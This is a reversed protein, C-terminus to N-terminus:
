GGGTQTEVYRVQVEVDYESLREALRAALDPPPGDAPRGITVVVQQPAQSLLDGNTEVRLELVALGDYGAVTERVQHDIDERDTATQYSNYTVGGLFASLVLIAVALVAGRKFLASRAQGLRFWHTPRYGSYWFVLLAALNISLANVAVLVSGGLVIRPRLWAIGIGVVAAPPVLAVAIMVGVLSASVGSRLSMAGAAGAGIAIVLTLFGPAVRESVEAIALLDLGPPVLGGYRVLVAFAAATAVALPFGYAQMRLGSLFLDRDDLVTGVSAAMAPGILPAIVMSGVVTAPSDLLLGATAILVSVVTLVVYNTTDPVLDAARAQLEERAIREEGGESEEYQEQLKDFKRSIVTEAELVITFTEESLGADRLDELVPEVAESPLPFTAVATYERSSTEESLVYEVGAEALTRTVAERKGAPITVHVLRM